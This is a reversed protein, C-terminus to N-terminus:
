DRVTEWRIALGEYECHPCDLWISTADSAPVSHGCGLTARQIRAYLPLPILDGKV